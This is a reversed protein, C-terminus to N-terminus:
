KKTQPKQLQSTLDGMYKQEVKLVSQPIPLLSFAQPLFNFQNVEVLAIGQRIIDLTKAASYSLDIMLRKHFPGRDTVKVVVEKNNKPNRVLLLTGLPYTRHACTLSDPHYRTGDSTHRGTLKHSYYTANGLQQGVSYTGAAFLIFSAFIFKKM